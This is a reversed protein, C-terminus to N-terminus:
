GPCNPIADISQCPIGDNNVFGKEMLDGQIFVNNGITKLAEADALVKRVVIMNQYSFVGLKDVAPVIDSKTSFAPHPIVLLLPPGNKLLM